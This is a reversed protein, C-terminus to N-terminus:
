IRLNGSERRGEPGVRTGGFEFPLEIVGDMSTGAMIRERPPSGTVPAWSEVGGPNLVGIGSDM